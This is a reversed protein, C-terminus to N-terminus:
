PHLETKAARRREDFSLAGAGGIALALLVSAYLLSVEMGPMGFTPGSPGMGTINIFNFGSPRHVTFAAVLMEIILPIAAVTLYAGILIALGGVVEVLGVVWATVEPLPVGIGKLAGVFGQHGAASLKPLGHYLFGFGLSLRLPIPWWRQSTTLM